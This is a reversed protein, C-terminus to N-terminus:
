SNELRGREAFLANLQRTTDALETRAMGLEDELHCVRTHQEKQIHRMVAIREALTMPEASELDVDAAATELISMADAPIRTKGDRWNIMTRSTVGCMQAASELTLGARSLLSAIM